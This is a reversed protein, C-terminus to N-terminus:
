YLILPIYNYLIIRSCSNVNHTYISNLLILSVQLSPLEHVLLLLPVCPINLGHILLVESAPSVLSSCGVVDQRELVIGTRISLIQPLPVIICLHPLEHPALVDVGSSVAAEVRDVAGVPLAHIDRLV